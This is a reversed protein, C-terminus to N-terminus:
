YTKWLYYKNKWIYSIADNNRLNEPHLNLNLGFYFTKNRYIFGKYATFDEFIRM